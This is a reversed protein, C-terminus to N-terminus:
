SCIEALTRNDREVVDQNAMNGRESPSKCLDVCCRSIDDISM